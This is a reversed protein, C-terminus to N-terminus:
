TTSGGAAGLGWWRVPREETPREAGRRHLDDLADRFEESLAHDAYNHFSRHEWWGNVEDPVGQRPRRGTLGESRVLDIGVTALSARLADEDFQPYRRSGPLRRVDVVLEVGAGTLLDLLEDITRNSHGITFIRPSM